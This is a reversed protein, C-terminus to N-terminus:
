CKDISWINKKKLSIASYLAVTNIAGTFIYEKGGMGVNETVSCIRRM